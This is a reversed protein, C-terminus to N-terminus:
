QLIGDLHVEFHSIPRQHMQTSSLTCGSPPLTLGCWGSAPHWWGASAEEQYWSKTLYRPPKHGVANSACHCTCAHHQPADLGSWGNLHKCIFHPSQTPLMLAILLTGTHCTLPEREWRGLSIWRPSYSSVVLFVSIIELRIRTFGRFRCNRKVWRVRWCVCVCVFLLFFLTLQLHELCRWELCTPWFTHCGGVQLDVLICISWVQCFSRM